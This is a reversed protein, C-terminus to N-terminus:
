SQLRPLDVGTHFGQRQGTIKPVTDTKWRHDMLKMADATDPNTDFGVPPSKKVWKFIGTRHNKARAKCSQKDNDLIIALAVRNRIETTSKKRKKNAAGETDEEIAALAQNNRQVRLQNAQALVRQQQEVQSETHTQPLM